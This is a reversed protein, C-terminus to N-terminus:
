APVKKTNFINHTTELTVNYADVNNIFTNLVDVVVQTTQKANAEIYVEFSASHQRGASSRQINYADLLELAQKLNASVAFNNGTETFDTTFVFNVKLTAMKTGIFNLFMCLTNQPTSKVTYATITCLNPTKTLHKKCTKQQIKAVGFHM